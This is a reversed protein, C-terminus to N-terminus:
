HSYMIIFITLLEIGLREGNIGKQLYARVNNYPSTMPNNARIRM